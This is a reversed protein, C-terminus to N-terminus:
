VSIKRIALNELDSRGLGREAGVRVYGLQEGKLGFLTAGYADVAVQDTGVVVTDLKKVDKLNGGQPGNATLVRVADLVTLTPKLYLSLDVICEDLRQHIRSRNGGMIGMFNKIGMTLTALGHHKAVPVNIVKDAEIIDRYLPWRLLKRGGVSMEKFRRDDMYSVDAGQGKAAPEIGSQVYCRRPDNVSRDFVKVKKAGADMCLRVVEGVVEPNTCGAQEPVRDFGINPKVVVVDGKSVFRGMGGMAEIAARVIASPSSGHAVALDPPAAAQASGLLLDFSGPIAFGVGAAGALRIFERRRIGGCPHREPL